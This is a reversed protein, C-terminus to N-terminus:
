FRLGNKARYMFWDYTFYGAVALAAAGFVPAGLLFLGATGVGAATMKVRKKREVKRTEVLSTAMRSRYVVIKITNKRDHSLRPRLPPRAGHDAADPDGEPRGHEEGAKM